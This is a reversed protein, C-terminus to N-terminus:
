VCEPNLLMQSKPNCNIIDTGIEKKVLTANCRGETRKLGLHVASQSNPQLRAVKSGWVEIVCPQHHIMERAM